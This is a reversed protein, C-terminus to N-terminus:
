RRTASSAGNGRSGQRGQSDRPPKTLIKINGLGENMGYHVGNPASLRPHNESAIVTKDTKKFAHSQAMPTMAVVYMSDASSAAAAAAAVKAAAASAAVMKQAGERLQIFDGEIVFLEPHSAVFDDLKGYKKRYDHWHLPALMKGLRNPLTSSICIRGGAPITRVICALLSREDLLANDSNRGATGSSLITGSVTSGTGNSVVTGTPSAASASGKQEDPPLEGNPEETKHNPAHSDIRLMDHFKSSIDQFNNQSRGSSLYEGNSSDGAQAKVSSSSLAPGPRAGQSSQVGLFTQGLSQGNGPMQYESKADSRVLGNDGQSPPNHNQVSSIQSSELVAKHHQWQHMSSVPLASQAVHSPPGQPQPVGQQHMVFSHLPTMQGPPLYAHMEVVSSPAMPLGAARNQAVTDDTSTFSQINDSSKGRSHINNNSSAPSSGNAELQNGNSQVIQSTSNSNTRSIHSEDTFSGGRERVNALEIQLQQVTHLHVREMEAFQRQCGIWLQNYQETRERLETQLSHNTSSQLVDVEQVRAIWAQAERLQEDKYLITEQAIRNQEQLEILQREKEQIHEQLECIQQIHQSREAESHDRERRFTALEKNQERLLDEKAWAAETDLKIAHLERDKEDMKRELERITREKEHLQEQLKAAANAHEKIQTEFNTQMEVIESKVIIQARLEIELQQLEEKQRSISHLRQQLIDSDSGGDVTISCFDVDVPERGHEYITREDSRDLKLQELDADDASNGGSHPDSVARWEKRSSSPSPIRMSCGRTAAVGAASEM